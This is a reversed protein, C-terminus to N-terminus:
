LGSESTPAIIEFAPGDQEPSIPEPPPSAPVTPDPEPVRPSSVSVSQPFSPKTSTLVAVKTKKRRTRKIKPPKEEDEGVLLIGLAITGLLLAVQM